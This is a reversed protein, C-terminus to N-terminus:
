KKKKSKKTSTRSRGKKEKRSQKVEEILIKGKDLIKEKLSPMKADDLKSM